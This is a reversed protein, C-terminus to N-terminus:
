VKRIEGKDMFCRIGAIEKRLEAKKYSEQNNLDQDCIIIKWKDERSGSFWKRAGSAITLSEGQERHWAKENTKSGGQDGRRQAMESMIKKM